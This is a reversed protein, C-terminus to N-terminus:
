IGGAVRRRATPDCVPYVNSLTKLPWCQRGPLLRWPFLKPVSCGQAAALSGIIAHHHHQHALLFLLERQVTSPYQQVPLTEHVMVHVSVSTDLQVETLHSVGARIEAILQLALDPNSECAVGRHRQEYDVLGSQAGALLAQTHDICHRVHAGIPSSGADHAAFAGKPLAQIFQVLADLEKLYAAICSQGPSLESISQTLPQSVQHDADQQTSM